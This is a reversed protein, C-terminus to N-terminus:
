ISNQHVIVFSYEAFNVNHKWLVIHSVVNVIFVLIFAISVDKAKYFKSYPVKQISISYNVYQNKFIGLIM